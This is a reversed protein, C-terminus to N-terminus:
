GIFKVMQTYIEELYFLRNREYTEVTLWSKQLQLVSNGNRKFRSTLNNRHKLVVMFRRSVAFNFNGCMWLKSV